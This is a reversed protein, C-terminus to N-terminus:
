ARGRGAQLAMWGIVWWILGVTFTLTGIPVMALSVFFTLAFLFRVSGAYQDLYALVYISLMGALTTVSGIRILSGAMRPIPRAEMAGHVPSQYPNPEM